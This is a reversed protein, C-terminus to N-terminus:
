RLQCTLTLVFQDYLSNKLSQSCPPNCGMHLQSVPLVAKGMSYTSLLYSVPIPEHLDRHDELLFIM